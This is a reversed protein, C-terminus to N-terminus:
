PQHTAQIADLYRVIRWLISSAEADDDTIERFITGWVPMDSTGHARPMTTGSVYSALKTSLPNGYRAHLATLPPPAPKLVNAVPGKGDAAEGHCASCYRLYEEQGTPREEASTAFASLLILLALFGYPVKM